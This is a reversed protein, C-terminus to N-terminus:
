VRSREGAMSAAVSLTIAACVCHTVAAAEAGTTTAVLRSVTAQLEDLVYFELLAEAVASAVGASSRSVGLPTFTGRANIVRTLGYHQIVSM